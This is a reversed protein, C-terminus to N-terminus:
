LSVAPGAILGIILIMLMTERSMTGSSFLIYCKSADTFIFPAGFVPAGKKITRVLIVIIPKM